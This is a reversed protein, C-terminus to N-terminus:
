PGIVRYTRDANYHVVEHTFDLVDPISRAVAIEAIAARPGRVARREEFDYADVNKFLSLGRPPPNYLTTGSNYPSLQVDCDYRELMESTDVKFVIQDRDRYARAGLLESLREATPWFFVRRNLYRLYQAVSTGPELIRELVGENLPKNDRIVARGHVPHVLEVSDPRRRSEMAQREEGEVEFLDLLASTSLLGRAAIGPLSEPSTMHFAVPFRSILDNRDM